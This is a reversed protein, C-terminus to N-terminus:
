CGMQPRSTVPLRKLEKPTAPLIRAFSHLTSSRGAHRSLPPSAPLARRESSIVFAIFQNTLNPALEGIKPRIDYDIPNAPSDVVFPLEHEGSRNFLTALFAYGVSLNEGASGTTQGRLSVSRDIEDIRISNDPMLEAIRDNADEKIENAIEQRATAYAQQVIQNLLDRKTRLALTDTIEAVQVELVSVIEKVTAISSIRNPDLNEM